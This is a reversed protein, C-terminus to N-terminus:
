LGLHPLMSLMHSASNLNLYQAAIFLSFGKWFTLGALKRVSFQRTQDPRCSKFRRCRAGLCSVSSKELM